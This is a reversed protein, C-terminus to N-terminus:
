LFVFFLRFIIDKQIIIICVNRLFNVLNEAAKAKLNFKYNRQATNGDKGRGPAVKLPAKVLSNTTM